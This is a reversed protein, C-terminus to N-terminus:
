LRHVCKCLWIKITIRRGTLRSTNKYIRWLHLFYSWDSETSPDEVQPCPIEELDTTRTQTIDGGQTSPFLRHINMHNQIDKQTQDITVLHMPTMYMSGQESHM